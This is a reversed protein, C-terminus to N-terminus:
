LREKPCKPDLKALKEMTANFKVKAAYLRSNIEEGLARGCSMGGLERHYEEYAQRAKWKLARIRLEM